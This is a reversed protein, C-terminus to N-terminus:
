CCTQQVGLFRERMRNSHLLYVQLKLLTVHIANFCLLSINCLFGAKKMRIEEKIKSQQLFFFFFNCKGNNHQNGKIELQTTNVCVCVSM